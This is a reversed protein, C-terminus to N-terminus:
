TPNHSNPHLRAVTYWVAIIRLNWFAQPLLTEQSAWSQPTACTVQNAPITGIKYCLHPYTTLLNSFPCTIMSGKWSPLFMFTVTAETSLIASYIAHRFSLHM